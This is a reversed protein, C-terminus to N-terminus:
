LFPIRLPQQCPIMGSAQQSVQQVTRQQQLHRLARAFRQKEKKRQRNEVPGCLHCFKCAAGTRCSNRHIFDCPRCLGHKHGVSGVSPCEPTGIAPGELVFNALELVPKSAHMEPSEASPKPSAALSGDSPTPSAATISRAPSAAALSPPPSALALSPPLSASTVSAVPSAAVSRLMRGPEYAVSDNTQDRALVPDVIQNLTSVEEWGPAKVAGLGALCRMLKLDM